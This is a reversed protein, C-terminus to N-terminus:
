NRRHGHHGYDPYDIIAFLIFIASAIIGLLFGAGATLEVYNFLIPWLIVQFIISIFRLNSM